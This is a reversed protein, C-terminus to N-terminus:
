TAPRQYLSISAVIGLAAVATLVGIQDGFLVFGLVAGFVMSIYNAFSVWTAGHDRTIRLYVLLALAEGMVIVGLALPDLLALSLADLHGSTLTGLLAAVGIILAQAHAVQTAGVGDPWRRAVFVTNLAYLLPVGFAAGVWWMSVSGAPGVSTDWLIAVACVFGLLVALIARGSLTESGALASLLLAMIPMTAIVVIFVFVPLHPAVATELAFPALFGLLGSLAYFGLVQRDIPPWDSVVVARFSFLLALGLATVIIVVDVPIGSLGAAKIAVIRVAWLFGLLVLMAVKM